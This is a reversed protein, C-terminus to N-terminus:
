KLDSRLEGCNCTPLELDKDHSPVAHCPVHRFAAWLRGEYHANGLLFHMIGHSLKLVGMAAGCPATSWDSWCREREVSNIHCKTWHCESMKKAPIEKWCCRLLFASHENTDKLEKEKQSWPSVWCWVSIIWTVPQLFDQWISRPLPFSSFLSLFTSTLLWFPLQMLGLLYNSWPLLLSPWTCGFM